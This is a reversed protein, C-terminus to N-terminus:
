ATTGSRVVGARAPLVLPAQLRPLCADSWGRERPSFPPASGCAIPALPGGGSARPSSWATAATRPRTRVVGARAPLVVAPRRLRRPCESWGRERPSFKMLAQGSPKLLPGGGSARPSRGGPGRRHGSPRVVGARAPLVSEDPVVGRHQVSWGRERPSFWPAPPRTSVSLPGGGSARPSGRRGWTSRGPARVVGARAPLVVLKAGAPRGLRSWGRERPSFPGDRGQPQDGRPGGGSARPSGCGRGTWTVHRRVVGARAPLVDDPGVARPDHGSWGRERPSFRGRAARVYPDPPGGGSARPSRIPARSSFWRGRVVGARAPLVAQNAATASPAESWGRERPSFLPPSAM